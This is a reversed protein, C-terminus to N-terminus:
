FFEVLSYISLRCGVQDGNIIHEFSHHDWDMETWSFRIEKLLRHRGFPV